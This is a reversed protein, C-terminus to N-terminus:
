VVSDAVTSSECTVTHNEKSAYSGEIMTSEELVFYVSNQEIHFSESVDSLSIITPLEEEVTKKFDEVDDVTWYEVDSVDEGGVTVHNDPTIQEIVNSPCAQETVHDSSSSQKTVYDTHKTSLINNDGTYLRVNPIEYLEDDTEIKIEKIESYIQDRADQMPKRSDVPQRRTPVPVEYGQEDHGQKYVVHEKKDPSPDERCYFM